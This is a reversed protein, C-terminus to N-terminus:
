RKQIRLPLQELGYAFFSVVPQLQVERVRQIDKFREIIVELTIRTELRALPAGLCFHIGSGFTLHRNPSRRIDFIDPDPFQEEDRNASGTWLFMRHGRQLQRGGFEADRTVLRTVRPAVPFFRLVEEITSPLLSPDAWVQERAQPHEDLCRLTNGILHTTTEHGAVLLLACFDVIQPESLPEGDIQASLLASILDAQPAKRREVVLARILEHLARMGAFGQEPVDSAIAESCRKFDAHQSSPVGMLAAIVRVPLPVALERMVELTGSATSADLLENVIGRINDAQQAITRPTFAESVLSRLKKHRPPDVAVVSGRETDLDLDFKSSFLTPDALVAQVDNYRFVECLQNQEDISVPNTMRMQKFWSFPDLGMRSISRVRMLEQLSLTTM